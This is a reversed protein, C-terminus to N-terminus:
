PTGIVKFMIILGVVISVFLPVVGFLDRRSTKRGRRNLAVVGIVIMGTVMLQVYTSVNRLSLIDSVIAMIVVGGATGLLSGRGGSLPVGGVVVAAIAALNLTSGFNPDASQLQTIALLAAIGACVGSIFYIVFRRRQVPIGAYRAAEENGGILYIQRGFVTWSLVFQGVLVVVLFVIIPGQVGFVKGNLWPLASSGDLYLPSSGSIYYAAGQAMTLTGLTVIFPEIRAATVGFGNIMGMFAGTLLAAAIVATPGGGQFRGAVIAALGMVAGVSLDIGSGGALIVLAEGIALVGVISATTLVDRFNPVTLFDPSVVTGLLIVLVLAPVVGAKSILATANSYARRWAQPEPGSGLQGPKTRQPPISEAEVIVSEGEVPESTSRCM